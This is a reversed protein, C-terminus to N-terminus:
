EHQPATHLGRPEATAKRLVSSPVKTDGRRDGAWRPREHGADAAGAPRTRVHLSRRLSLIGHPFIISVDKNQLPNCRGQGARCRQFATATAAAVTACLATAATTPSLHPAGLRPYAAPTPRVANPLEATPASISAHSLTTASVAASAPTSRSLSIRAGPPLTPATAAAAASPTPVTSESSPYSSDGSHRCETRPVM